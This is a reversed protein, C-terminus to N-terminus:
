IRSRFHVLKLIPLPIVSSLIMGEVAKVRHWCKGWSTCDLFNQSWRDRNWKHLSISCGDDPHICLIGVMYLIFLTSMFALVILYTSWNRFQFPRTEKVTPSKQLFLFILIGIASGFFNLLVDNFDFYASNGILYQYGEDMIGLLYAFNLAVWANKMIQFALIGMLAYQLFHIGESKYAMLYYYGAYSLIFVLVGMWKLSNSIKKNALRKIVMFLMATAAMLFFINLVLSLRANGYNKVFWEFPKEVEEHLLLCAVFYIILVIIVKYTFISSHYKM